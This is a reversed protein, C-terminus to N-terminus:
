RDKTVKEGVSFPNLELNVKDEKTMEKKIIKKKLEENEMFLYYELEENSM